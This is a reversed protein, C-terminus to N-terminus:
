AALSRNVGTKRTTRACASSLAFDYDVTVPAYDSFRQDHYIAERSISRMHAINIDGVLVSEREEKLRMLHPCIM